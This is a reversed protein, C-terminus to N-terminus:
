AFTKEGASSIYSVQKSAKRCKIHEEEAAANNIVIKSNEFAIVEGGVEARVFIKRPNLARADLRIMRLMATVACKEGIVEDETSLNIPVIVNVSYIKGDDGKYLVEANVNVETKVRGVSIDKSRILMRGECCLVESIDPLTDPVVVDRSEEKRLNASYINKCCNFEAVGIKGEM